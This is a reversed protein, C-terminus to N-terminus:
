GANQGANWRRGNCDGPQIGAKAARGSVHAEIKLVAIDRSKDSGLVKGTSERHDSLTVTVTKAGDVIDANTFVLGDASVIFGSGQARVRATGSDPGPTGPFFRFFPNRDQDGFPSWGFLGKFPTTEDTKRQSVAAIGVVAAKNRAVIARYNPATIPAIPTSDSTNAPTVTSATPRTDLTKVLGPATWGVATGAAFVGAATLAVTSRPRRCISPALSKIRIRGERLSVFAGTRRRSVNTDAGAENFPYPLKGSRKRGM